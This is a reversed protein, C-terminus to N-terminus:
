RFEFLTVVSTGDAFGIVLQRCTGTWSSSTKWNYKWTGDGLYKLGTGVSDTPTLEGGAVGDCAVNASTVSSIADNSTVPGIANTL